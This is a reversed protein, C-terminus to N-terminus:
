LLSIMKEDLALTKDMTIASLDSGVRIKTALLFWMLAELTM